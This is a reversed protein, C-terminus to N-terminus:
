HMLAQGGEELAIFALPIMQQVELLSNQVETEEQHCRNQEERKMARAHELIRGVESNWVVLEQYGEMSLMLLTLLELSHTITDQPLEM